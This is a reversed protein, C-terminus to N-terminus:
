QVHTFEHEEGALFICESITVCVRVYIHKFDTNPLTYKRSM